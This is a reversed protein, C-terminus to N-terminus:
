FVVASGEGVKQYGETIIRQGPKLGTAIEIRNGVTPGTTVNARHARKKEDITWVFCTGDGRKQVSTIPVSLRNFATAGGSTLGPEATRLGVKAVMGPLLRNGTNAVNIRIDYTHTIADAKVGKEISGGQGRWNVADVEITSPTSSSISSLEVEPVAVKVKVQSVDLITLVGQSPRATEGAFLMTRGVVGSVPATLRTDSLNKRAIREMAKSSSVGSTATKLSTEAQQLRTQAEIWKIEPLSGNDHLMKMRDYADKAQAYTARSQAVMDDAQSTSAQAADVSNSANTADIEALLQGKSVYQGEKVYVRRVVGLTTFSVATATNEEVIGVYTRGQGIGDTALQETKVRIPKKEKAEQKSNCACLTSAAVLLLGITKINM